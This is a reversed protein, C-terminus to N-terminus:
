VMKTSPSRPALSALSPATLPASTAAVAVAAVAAAVVVETVLAAAVVEVAVEVVVVEAVVVVVAALAVVVVVLAAKPVPSPTTLDCLALSDVTASPLVPGPTILRELTMLPALPLM